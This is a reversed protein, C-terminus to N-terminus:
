RSTRSSGVVARRTLFVSARTSRARSSLAMLIVECVRLNVLEPSILVVGTPLVGDVPSLLSSATSVSTHLRRWRESPSQNKMPMLAIRRNLTGIPTEWSMVIHDTSLHTFRHVFMMKSKLDAGNTVGRCPPGNWNDGVGAM